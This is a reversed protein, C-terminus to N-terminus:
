LRCNRRNNEAPHGLWCRLRACEQPREGTEITAAADGKSDCQIACVPQGQRTPATRAFAQQGAMAAGESQRVIM